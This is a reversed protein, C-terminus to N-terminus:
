CSRGSAPPSADNLAKARLILQRAASVVEDFDECWCSDITADINHAYLELWLRPSDALWPQVFEVLQVEYQGIRTLSVTKSGDKDPAAFLLRMYARTIQLESLLTSMEKCLVAGLQRSPAARGGAPLRSPAKMSGVSLACRAPTHWDNSM